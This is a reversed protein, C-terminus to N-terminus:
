TIFEACVRRFTQLKVASMVMRWELSTLIVSQGVELAYILVNVADYLFTLAEFSISYWCYIYHMSIYM